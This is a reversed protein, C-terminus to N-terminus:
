VFRKMEDSRVISLLMTSVSVITSHLAPVDEVYHKFIPPIGNAFESYFVALGIENIVEKSVKNDLEYKYKLRYVYNWTCMIFMLVLAFSFPLYGVESFKYLVSTLRM